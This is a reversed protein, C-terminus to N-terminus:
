PLEVRSDSTGSLFMADYKTQVICDYARLGIPVTQRMYFGDSDGILNVRRAVAGIFTDQASSAGIPAQYKNTTGPGAAIGQITIDVIQSGNGPHVICGQSSILANSTITTAGMGAGILNIGTVSDGALDVINVDIAYTGPFLLITEGAGPSSDTPLANATDPSLGDYTPDGTMSVFHVKPTRYVVQAVAQATRDLAGLRLVIKSTVTSIVVTVLLDVSDGGSYTLPLVASATYDGVDNRTVTVTVASDVAGNRRLSAVPTSDADVSAGSTSLTTFGIYFTDGPRYNM